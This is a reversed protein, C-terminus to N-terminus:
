RLVAMKGTKERIKEDQTVTFKYFYVGNAIGRGNEDCLDWEFTRVGSTGGGQFTKILRGSVTYVKLEYRDAVDGVYFYFTTIDGNVPNPYNAIERLSFEIKVDNFIKLSSRNELNDAAGVELSHKGNELKASYAMQVSHSKDPNITLSYDSRPVIQNDLKLWISDINIGDRDEIMVSYQPDPISIIQGWGVAQQDVKATIQPGTTDTSYMVAFTGPRSSFGSIYSSDIQSPILQWLGTNDDNRFLKLNNLVTTSDINELKLSVWLLRNDDFTRSSDTLGVFYAQGLSDFPILGSQAIGNIDFLKRGIIAVASDHLCSDPFVAKIKSYYDLTDQNTGRADLQYYYFDQAPVWYAV